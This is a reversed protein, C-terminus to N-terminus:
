VEGDGDAAADEPRTASTSGDPAPVQTGSRRFQLSTSNVCYREGTPDPGDDFVHGLHGGCNACLIETRPVLMSWDRKRTIKEEDLAAWFSPWGCHSEYKTGSSFLSTGCGACYYTGDDKVNVYAGSFPPDTAKERLVRYQEPTLTKRWEEESREMGM